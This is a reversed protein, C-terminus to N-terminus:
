LSSHHADKAHTMLSPHYRYPSIRFTPSYRERSKSAVRRRVQATGSRCESGAQGVVGIKLKLRSSLKTSPDGLCPHWNGVAM